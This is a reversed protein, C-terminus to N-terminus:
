RKLVCGGKTVNVNEIMIKCVMLCMKRTRRVTEMSLGPAKKLPSVDAACRILKKQMKGANKSPQKGRKYFRM